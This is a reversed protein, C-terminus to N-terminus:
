CRARLAFGADAVRQASAALDRRQHEGAVLQLGQHDSRAERPGEGAPPKGGGGRLREHLDFGDQGVVQVARDVATM